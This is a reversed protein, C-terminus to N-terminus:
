ASGGSVERAGNRRVVFLMGVGLIALTAVAMGWPSAGPTNTHPQYKEEHDMTIAVVSGGGTGTYTMSGSAFIASTKTILPNPVPVTLGITVSDGPSLTAGAFVAFSDRQSPLAGVSPARYFKLQGLQITRAADRNFLKFQQSHSSGLPVLQDIYKWKWNAATNVNFPNSAYTFEYNIATGENCAGLGGKIDSEISYNICSGPAISLGTVVVDYGTILGLTLVPTATVTGAPTTTISFSDFYFDYTVSVSLKFGTATRSDTNRIGDCGGGGGGGGGTWNAQAAHATSTAGLALLGVAVQLLRLSRAFLRRSSQM